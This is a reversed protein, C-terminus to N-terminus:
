EAALAGPPGVRQPTKGAQWGLWSAAAGAVFGMALAMPTGLGAFAVVWSDLDVLYYGVSMLVMQAIIFAAVVAFANSRERARWWLVLALAVMMADTIMITHLINAFDAPGEIRFFPINNGIARSAPSEFLIMPTGLLYASHAWVKRRHKLANYYLVLYAGIAPWLGLFFTDGYLAIFPDGGAVVREANVMGIGMLGMTLFPFLYLSSQGTARHLARKKHHISWSQTAVMIVWVTAVAGHLHFEWRASGAQSWYSPWFGLLIVGLCALVWWHAHRYPM